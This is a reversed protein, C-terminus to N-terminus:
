VSVEGCYVSDAAKGDERLFTMWTHMKKGKFGSPIDIKSECSARYETQKQFFVDAYNEVYVVLLCTDYKFAGGEASNDTWRFILQNNEGPNATAGAAPRVPGRAVLLRSYDVEFQPAEGRIAEGRLMYRIAQARGLQGPEQEFSFEFLRAFDSAVKSAFGFRALSRAQAPTRKARLTRKSKKAPRGRMVTKGRWKYLVVTGVLGSIENNSVKAM